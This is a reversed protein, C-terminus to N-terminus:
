PRLTLTEGGVESVATRTFALPIEERAAWRSALDDYHGSAPSGSQGPANMASSRDWAGANFTAHFSAGSRGDVSVVYGMGPERPVASGLPGINFRSRADEFVALPHEFSVTSEGETAPSAIPISKLASVLIEDRRGSDGFLITEPRWALMLPDVFSLVEDHLEKPVGARDEVITRVAAVFELM